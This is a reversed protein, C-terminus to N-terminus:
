KEFQQNQQQIPEERQCAWKWNSWSPRGHDARWLPLMKFWFGYDQGEAM